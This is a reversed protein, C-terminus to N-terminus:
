KLDFRYKKNIFDKVREDVPLQYVYPMESHQQMWEEWQDEDEM